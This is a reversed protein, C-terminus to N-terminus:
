KLLNLGDPQTAPGAPKAIRHFSETLAELDRALLQCKDELVRNEQRLANFRGVLENVLEAVRLRETQSMRAIRGDATMAENALERIRDLQLGLQEREQQAAALANGFNETMAERSRNIEERARDRQTRFEDRERRLNSIEESAQKSAANDDCGSSGLGALLTVCMVLSVNARSMIM